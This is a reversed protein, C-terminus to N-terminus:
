VDAAFTAKFIKMRTLTIQFKGIYSFPRSKLTKYIPRRTNNQKESQLSQGIVTYGINRVNLKFRNNMCAFAQTVSM